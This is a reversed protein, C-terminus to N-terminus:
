PMCYLRRWTETYIFMSIDRSVEQDIHMINWIHRWMELILPVKTPLLLTPWGSTTPGDGTPAAGIADENEDLCKAGISQASVVAM